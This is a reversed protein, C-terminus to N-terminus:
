NWFQIPVKPVYAVDFVEGLRRPPAGITFKNILGQVATMNSKKDVGAIKFFRKEIAPQPKILGKPTNDAFFQNLRSGSVMLQYILRQRPSPYNPSPNVFTQPWVTLSDNALDVISGNGIFSNGSVNVTISSSTGSLVRLSASQGDIKVLVYSGTGYPPRTQPSTFSIIANFGNASVYMTSISPLTGPDAFTVSNADSSIVTFSTDYSVQTDVVRIVSGAPFVSSAIAGSDIYLTVLPTNIPISTITNQDYLYYLIVDSTYEVSRGVVSIFDPISVIGSLFPDTTLGINDYTEMRYTPLTTKDSKLSTVTSLKGTLTINVFDRLKNVTSAKGTALITRDARMSEIQKQMSSMFPTYFVQTDIKPVSLKTIVDASVKPVVSRLNQISLMKGAAIVSRDAKLRNIVSSKGLDPAYFVESSIASFKLKLLNGLASTYVTGLSPLQKQINNMNFVISDKPTPNKIVAIQKQLPTVTGFNVGVYARSTLPVLQVTTVSRTNGGTPTYFVKSFIAPFKLRTLSNSSIVSTVSKIIEIQKQLSNADFVYDSGPIERVLNISSAKGTALTNKDSVLRTAVTSTKGAAPTYFVETAVKPVNLKTVIDASIKPTTSRIVEIQKQLPTVNGFNVGVYARSTLPVLRVTNIGSAKGVLINNPSAGARIVEIQKQMPTITGFNVGVYARSTLPVLRVTNIGSAKGAARSDTIGNIASESITISASSLAVTPAINVTFTNGPVTGVITTSTNPNSITFGVGANATGNDIITSSQCTLISTQTGTIASSPNGNANASQTAALATTPLTFTNSYVAVGSVIRFNSIYGAFNAVGSSDSGIKISGNGITGAQTDTTSSVVGNVYVSVTSGSRVIAIHTWTNVPTSVAYTRSGFGYLNSTIGGGNSIYWVYRNTTETGLCFIAHDSGTITTPYFWGEVTFNGAFTFAANTGTSPALLYQNTGNFSVTYTNIYAASSIVTNNAFQGTGSVVAPTSGILGLDITKGSLTVTTGSSSATATSTYINWQISGVTGPAPFVTTAM